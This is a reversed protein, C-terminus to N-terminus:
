SNEVDQDAPLEVEGAALHALLESARPADDERVFLRVPGAAINGGGVRGLGVLEQVGEGQVLHEIGEEDLMSRVIPILTADGTEFVQVLKADPEAREDSAVLAAGCEMCTTRDGPNEHQCQPCKM